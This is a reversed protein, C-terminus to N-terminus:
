PKEKGAPQEKGLARIASAFEHAVFEGEIYSLDECQKAADEIAKAYVARAFHEKFGIINFGPGKVHQAAAISAEQVMTLIEDRTM